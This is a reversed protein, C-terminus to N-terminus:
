ASFPDDDDTRYWVRALVTISETSGTADRGMTTGDILTDIALTSRHRDVLLARIVDSAITQLLADINDTSDDAIVKRCLIPVAGNWDQSGMPTSEVPVTDGLMVLATDDGRHALGGAMTPRTVTLDTNYGNAITVGDLTTNIDQIILEIRPTSM